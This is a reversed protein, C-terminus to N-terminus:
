QLTTYKRYAEEVTKRNVHPRHHRFGGAFSKPIHLLEHILTKTKEEEPLRDFNESIVEIIYYPKEGLTKQFIRSLSHCRALVYRSKSGKSRISIVRAPNIHKMGLKRIIDRIRKDIDPAYHYSIM